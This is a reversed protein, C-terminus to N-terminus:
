ITETIRVLFLAKSFASMWSKYLHCPASTGRTKWLSVFCINLDPHHKEIHQLKKKPPTTAAFGLASTSTSRSLYFIFLLISFCGVWRLCICLPSKVWELCSKDPNQLFEEQQHTWHSRDKYWVLTWYDTVSPGSIGSLTSSIAHYFPWFLTDLWYSLFESFEQLLWQQIAAFAASNM